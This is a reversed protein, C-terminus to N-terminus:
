ISQGTQPQESSVAELAEEGRERVEQRLEGYSSPVKERIDELRHRLDTRLQDGRKPAFLMGLTAGVAIGAGFIGLAPLITEMTGRKQELGLKNLLSDMSNDYTSGVSRNLNDFTKKWEM